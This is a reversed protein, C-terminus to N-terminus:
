RSVHSINSGFEPAHVAEPEICNLLPSCLAENNGDPLIITEPPVLRPPSTLTQSIYSGAKPKHFNVFDSANGRNLFEAVTSNDPFTNTAPQREDLKFVSIEFQSNYSSYISVLLGGVTRLGAVADGFGTVPLVVNNLTSAASSPPSVFKFYMHAVVPVEGAATVKLGFPVLSAFDDVAVNVFAPVYVSCHVILSAPFRVTVLVTVTVAVM